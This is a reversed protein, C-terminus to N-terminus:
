MESFVSLNFGNTCVTVSFIVHFFKYANTCFVSKSFRGLSVPSNAHKMSLQMSMTLKSKFIIRKGLAPLQFPKRSASFIKKVTDSKKYDGYNHWINTM